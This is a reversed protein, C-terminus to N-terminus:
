ARNPLHRRIAWALTSPSGSLVTLAVQGAGGLTLSGVHDLRATTVGDHQFRFMDRAVGASNNAALFTGNALGSVVANPGLQLLAKTADPRSKKAKASLRKFGPPKSAAM